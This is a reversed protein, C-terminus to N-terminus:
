YENPLMLTINLETSSWIRIKEVYLEFEKTNLRTTSKVYLVGAKREQHELIQYESLFKAKLIEHMEDPFYGLEDAMVQVICRWYYANQNLSRTNKNEKIEVVYDKNSLQKLYNYLKIKDDETKIVFKM